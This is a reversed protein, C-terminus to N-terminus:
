DPVKAYVSEIGTASTVIRLETRDDNYFFTLLLDKGNNTLVGRVAGPVVMYFGYYTGHESISVLDGNKKFILYDTTAGDPDYVLQWKGILWAIDDEATQASTGWSGALLALLFILRPIM